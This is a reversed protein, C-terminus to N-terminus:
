HEVYQDILNLCDDKIIRHKLKLPNVRRYKVRSGLAEFKLNLNLGYEPAKHNYRELKLRRHDRFGVSLNNLDYRMESKLHPFTHVLHTLIKRIKSKRLTAMVGMPVGKRIKFKANAKRCKTVTSASGGLFESFISEFHEKVQSIEKPTKGGLGISVIVRDIKFPTM